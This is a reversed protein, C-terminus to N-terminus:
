GQIEFKVVMTMALLKLSTAIKVSEGTMRLSRLSRLIEHPSLVIPNGRRRSAIATHHLSMCEPTRSPRPQNDNDLM